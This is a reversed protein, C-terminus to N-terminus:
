VGLGYKENEVIATDRYQYQYNSNWVWLDWQNRSPIYRQLEGDANLTLEYKRNLVEDYNNYESDVWEGWTMGKEATFESYTSVGNSYGIEISFSILEPETDGGVVAGAVFTGTGINTHFSKRVIDYLGLEGDEDRRAPIFDGVITDDVSIKLSYVKSCTHNNYVDGDHGCFVAITNGNEKLTETLNAVVVDDCKFERSNMYNFSVLTKVNTAIYSSDFNSMGNWGLLAQGFWFRNGNARAGILVKGSRWETPEIDVLMGTNDNAPIGLDIVQTGTSEIYELQTYGKPLVAGTENKKCGFPFWCGTLAYAIPKSFLKHILFIMDQSMEEIAKTKDM